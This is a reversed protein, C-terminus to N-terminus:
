EKIGEKPDVVLLLCSTRDRTEKQIISRKFDMCEKYTDFHRIFAGTPPMGVDVQLWLVLVAAFGM